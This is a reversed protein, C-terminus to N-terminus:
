SSPKEEKDDQAFRRVENGSAIPMLEKAASLIVSPNM